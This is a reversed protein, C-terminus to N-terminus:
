ENLEEKITTEILKAKTNPLNHDKKWKMRRNQFWIQFYLFLTYKSHSYTFPSYLVKVQRETLMLTRAIEIRRRRNLYKKYHFEKELELIQSRTYATRIRKYSESGDTSQVINKVHLKKMWPYVVTNSSNTENSTKTSRHSNFNRPSFSFSKNDRKSLMQNHHIPKIRHRHIPRIFHQIHQRHVVIQRNIIITILQHVHRYRQLFILLLLLVLHYIIVTLRRIKRQICQFINPHQRLFRGNRITIIHM